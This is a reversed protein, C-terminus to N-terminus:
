TLALSLVFGEKSPQLYNLQAAITLVEHIIHKLEAFNNPKRIYFQAGMQYLVDVVNKQFSTSCIIVPFSKLRQSQKIESLCQLGNKRPMNLDLFLVDPLREEKNLLKMLQDGNQVTTLQVCIGLENLAEKFLLCDDEDDDALLICQPKKPTPPKM